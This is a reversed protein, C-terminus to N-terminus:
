STECFQLMNCSSTTYHPSTKTRDGSINKGYNTYINCLHSSIENVTVRMATLRVGEHSTAGVFIM